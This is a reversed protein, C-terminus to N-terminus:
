DPHLVATLYPGRVADPLAQLYREGDKPKLVAFTVPEIVTFTVLGGAEGEFVVRGRKDLRATGVVLEAVNVLDVHM